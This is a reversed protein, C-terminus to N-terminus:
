DTAKLFLDFDGFSIRQYKESYAAIEQETCDECIIAGPQFNQDMFKQSNANASVWEMRLNADPAGLLVWLPYEGSHDTLNLGVETIGLAKIEATMAQYPEYDELNTAFYLENRDGKLVSATTTREPNVVLPREQTQFIWPIACVLLIAALIGEVQYKEFKDLFVAVVPGFMFFFTLQLRGGTNTWKFTICDLLISLLIMAAYILVGRDEKGLIVMGIVAVLSILFIMMHIPNSSTQESTSGEPIYFVGDMSTRPDNIAQRLDEHLGLLYNRTWFDANMGPLQAHLVFNRSINSILVKWNRIENTQETLAESSYVQGYDEQNRLLTGGSIVGMIVLAALMWLLMRGVGMRRWLAIVGYVTFPLLFILAVPHTLVALAASLASLLLFFPKQSKRTFFLLMLIASLIWFTVLMYGTSSTAQTIAVPLTAGFIAAFRRGRITAGLVDALSAAAAIAGVYAVWAVMNATQDSGTFVYLNLQIIEAGPAGSNQAEIETAFHDLSQNQAWHAVRSMGSVMSESANPPSTFAVVATVVLVLILLTDLVFGFWTDRHYVVPLRLIRRNKLRLWIWLFGALIPLSWVISLAARNIAHLLSLAETSVVLYASWIIAAQVLSVRWSPERDRNGIFIWVGIFSLIALVFM